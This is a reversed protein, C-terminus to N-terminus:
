PIDEENWINEKNRESLPEFLCLLTISVTTIYYFCHYRHSGWVYCPRLVKPRCITINSRQPQPGECFKPTSSLTYWSSFREFYELIKWFIFLFIDCWHKFTRVYCFYFFKKPKIRGQNSNNHSINKWHHSCSKKIALVHTWM